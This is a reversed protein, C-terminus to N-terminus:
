LLFGARDPPALHYAARISPHLDPTSPVVITEESDGLPQGLRMSRAIFQPDGQIYDHLRHRLASHLICVFVPADEPVQDPIVVIAQLRGTSKLDNYTEIQGFNLGM